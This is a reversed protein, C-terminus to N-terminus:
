LLVACSAKDAIGIKLLAQLFLLEVACYLICRLNSKLKSNASFVRDNMSHIQPIM